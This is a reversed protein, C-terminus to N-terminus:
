ADPNEKDDLINLFKTGYEMMARSREYYMASRAPVAMCMARALAHVEALKTNMADEGRRRNWFEVAEDASDFCATDLCGNESPHGVCTVWHANADGAREDANNRLGADAGCFPCPKLETM